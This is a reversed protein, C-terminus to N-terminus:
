AGYLHPRRRAAILRRIASVQEKAATVGALDHRASAARQRSQAAQLRQVLTM